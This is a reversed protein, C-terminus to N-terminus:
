PIIITTISYTNHTRTFFVVIDVHKIVDTKFGNRKKITLQTMAFKKRQTSKVIPQYMMANQISFIDNHIKIM